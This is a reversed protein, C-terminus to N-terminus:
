HKRPAFSSNIYYYGDYGGGFLINDPFEFGKYEYNIEVQLTLFSTTRYNLMLGFSHGIRNSIQTQDFNRFDFRGSIGTSSIGDKLGISFDQAFLFNSSLIILAIILYINKM